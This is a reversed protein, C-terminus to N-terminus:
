WLDYRLGVRLQHYDVGERISLSDTDLYAMGPSSLYQYGFDMSVNRSLKYNVGAGLSYAFEYQRDCIESILCVDISNITAQQKAALFGAGAGVYPTLGAVTGLDVYGNVMGSWATHKASIRDVGNDFDYTDRAVFGLNLEARLFDTFHYGVGVGGNFRVNDTEQGLLTFDYVPEDLNYGVDGRLYWGSGVEVPVYEPGNDVFIPPDYDAAIAPAAQWLAAAALSLIIRTQMSM